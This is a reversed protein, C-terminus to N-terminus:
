RPNQGSGFIAAAVDDAAELNLIAQVWRDAEDGALPQAARAACDKFKAVLTDQDVPHDPHGLAPDVQRQILRGDRLRLELGGANGVQHGWGPAREFTVRNAIRLITPDHLSGEDFDDLTVRGRVLAL